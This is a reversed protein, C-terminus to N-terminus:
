KVWMRPRRGDVQETFVGNAVGEVERKVGGEKWKEIEARKGNKRAEALARSQESMRGPSAM